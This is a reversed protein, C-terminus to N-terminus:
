QTSTYDKIRFEKYRSQLMASQRLLQRLSGKLLADDYSNQYQKVKYETWEVPYQDIFEAKVSMIYGVATDAVAVVSKLKFRDICEKAPTLVAIFRSTGNEWEFSSVELCDFFRDMPGNSNNMDPRPMLPDIRLSRSNHDVTIIIKEDQLVDMRDNFVVSRTTNSIIEFEERHIEGSERLKKSQNVEIRIANGSAKDFDRHVSRYSDLLRHIEDLSQGQVQNMLGVFLVMM